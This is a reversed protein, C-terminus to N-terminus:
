RTTTNFQTFYAATPANTYVEKNLYDQRARQEQALRKNEDSLRQMNDKQSRNFEREILMGAKSQSLMQQDWQDKLKKEEARKRENELRQERQGKQFHNKQESNMGKWRGPIMRHPGFASQAAATNETLFDGYICNAIETSNDDEEQIRALRERDKREKDLALNYNDTALKINRQCDKEAKALALAREDLEIRKLDHLRNAEALQDKAQKKEDIQQQLWERMQEKQFSVRNDYNMDEGDFKQLSSITCRPDDDSVRSPKDKKLGEPDYLDFERRNFPQQHMQRFDNLNQNMEKIDNKQRMELLEGIKANRLADADMAANRQKEQDEILKKEQKQLDIASVDIGITRVKANFIRSQRQKEMNRRREIAAAERYDVPLDLKYM